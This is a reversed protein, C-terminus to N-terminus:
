EENAQTDEVVVTPADHDTQDGWEWYRINFRESDAVHTANRSEPSGTPIIRYDGDVDHNTKEVECLSVLDSLAEQGDKSDKESLKSQKDPQYKTNIRGAVAVSAQDSSWPRERDPTLLLLRAGKADDPPVISGCNVEDWGLTEVIDLMQRIYEVRYTGNYQYVDDSYETADIGVVSHEDTVRAVDDGSPLEDSM